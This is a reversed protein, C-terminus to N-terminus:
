SPLERRRKSRCFCGTTPLPLLSGDEIEEGHRVREVNECGPEFGLKCSRALVKLTEEQEGGRYKLLSLYNCAWGSDRACATGVSFALKGCARAPHKECAEQWFPVEQGPFRDGLGHLSLMAGFVASWIAIYALNRRRGTVQPAIRAPDFPRLFKSRAARDILLVLLNLVPVLMLKAPFGPDISLELVIM